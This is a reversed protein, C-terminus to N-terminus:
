IRARHSCHRFDCLINIHYTSLYRIYNGGRDEFINKLYFIEFNPFLNDIVLCADVSCLYIAYMLHYTSGEIMIPFTRCILSKAYDEDSFGLLLHVEFQAFVQRNRREEM